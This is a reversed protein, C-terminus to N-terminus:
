ACYLIYTKELDYNSIWDTMKSPDEHVAGIIKIDSAKWDSGSRVDLFVVESKGLMEQAEEKAIRPIETAFVYSTVMLFLMVLGYVFMLRKVNGNMM